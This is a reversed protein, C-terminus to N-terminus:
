SHDNTMGLLILCTSNVECAFIQNNRFITQTWIPIVSTSKNSADYLKNKIFSRKSYVGFGEVRLNKNYIGPLCKGANNLHFHNDYSYWMSFLEIYNYVMCVASTNM